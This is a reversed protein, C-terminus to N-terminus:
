RSEHLEGHRAAARTPAAHTGLWWDNMCSRIFGARRTMLSHALSSTRSLVNTVRDSRTRLDCACPHALRLYLFTDIRLCENVINWVAPLRSEHRDDRRAPGPIKLARRNEGVHRAGPLTESDPSHSCGLASVRESRCERPCPATLTRARASAAISAAPACLVCRRRCRLKSSRSVRRRSHTRATLHGRVAYPTSSGSEFPRAASWCRWRRAALARREAFALCDIGASSYSVLCRRARERLTRHRHARVVPEVLQAVRM